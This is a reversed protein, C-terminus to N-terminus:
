ISIIRKVPKDLSVFYVQQYHSVNVTFLCLINHLNRHRFWCVSVFMEYYRIIITHSSCTEAVSKAM